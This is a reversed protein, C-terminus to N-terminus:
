TLLIAWFVWRNQGNFLWSCCLALTVVWLFNFIVSLTFQVRLAIEGDSYQSRHIMAAGMGFGPLAYTLMVISTAYTYVGYYDPLLWRALLISRVFQVGAQFGSSAIMYGASRVSRQALSM